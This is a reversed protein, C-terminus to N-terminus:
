LVDMLAVYTNSRKVKKFTAQYFLLFVMKANSFVNNTMQNLIKVGGIKLVTPVSHIIANSVNM